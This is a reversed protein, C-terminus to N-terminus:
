PLDPLEPVDPLDPLDSGGTQEPEHVAYKKAKFIRELSPSFPNPYLLALYQNVMILADWTAREKDDLSEPDKIVLDTLTKGSEVMDALADGLTPILRLAREPSERQLNMPKNGTFFMTNSLDNIMDLDAKHEPDQGSKRWINYADALLLTVIPRFLNGYRGVLLSGMSAMM